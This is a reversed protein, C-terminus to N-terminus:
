ETTSDTLVQIGDPAPVKGELIDALQSLDEALARLSPASFEVYEGENGYNALCVFTTLENNGLDLQKVSITDIGNSGESREAFFGAKLNPTKNLAAASFSTFDDLM